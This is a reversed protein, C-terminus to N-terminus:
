IPLATPNNSTRNVKATATANTGQQTEEEVKRAHPIRSFNTFNVVM